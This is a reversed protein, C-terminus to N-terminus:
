QFVCFNSKPTPEFLEDALGENPDAETSVWKLVEVFITWRLIGWPPLRPM